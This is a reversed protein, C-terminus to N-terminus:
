RSAMSGERRRSRRGWSDRPDGPRSAPMLLLQSLQYQLILPRRTRFRCTRRPTSPTWRSTTRPDVSRARTISRHGFRTRSAPSLTKPRATSGVLARLILVTTSHAGFQTSVLDRTKFRPVRVQSWSSALLRSPSTLNLGRRVTLEQRLPHVEQLGGGALGDERFHLFIQSVQASPQPIISSGHNAASSLSPSTAFVSPM